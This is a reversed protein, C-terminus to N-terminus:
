KPRAFSFHRHGFYSTVTPMAVGILHAIEKPHWILQIAPFLFRELGVSILWVQVAAVVNVLVFRFFEDHAQRGSAAFVYRKSLLFATVMGFGYAFLVSWEFSMVMNLFYRSAMNVAAAFGGVLLFRSFESRKVVYKEGPDRVDM